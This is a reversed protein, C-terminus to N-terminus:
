KEGCMLALFWFAALASFRVELSCFLRFYFYTAIYTMNKAALTAVECAFPKIEEVSKIIKKKTLSTDKNSNNKKIIKIKTKIM